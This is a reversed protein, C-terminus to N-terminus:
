NKAAAERAGNHEKYAALLAKAVPEWIDPQDAVWERWLSPSFPAPDMTGDGIVDNITVGEWGIVFQKTLDVYTSLGKSDLEAAEADSFRRAIFTRDGVKVKVERRKLLAGLLDQAM